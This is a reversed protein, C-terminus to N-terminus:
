PTAFHHSFLLETCKLYRTDRVSAAFM